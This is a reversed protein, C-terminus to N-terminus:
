FSVSTKAATARGNANYYYTWGTQPVGAKFGDALSTVDTHIFADVETKSYVNSSLAVDKVAEELAVKTAVDTADAKADLLLDAETRTYISATSAKDKLLADTQTNHFRLSVRNVLLPGSQGALSRRRM